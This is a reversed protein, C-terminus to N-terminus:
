IMDFYIGCLVIELYGGGSEGFDEGERIVKIYVVYFVYV